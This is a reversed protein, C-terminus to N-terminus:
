NSSSGNNIDAESKDKLIDIPLKFSIPNIADAIDLAIVEYKAFQSQTPGIISPTKLGRFRIEV